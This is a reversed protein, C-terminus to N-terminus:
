FLVDRIIPDSSTYLHFLDSSQRFVLVVYGYNALPLTPTGLNNWAYMRHMYGHNWQNALEKNAMPILGM